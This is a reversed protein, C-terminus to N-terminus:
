CSAFVTTAKALPYADGASKILICIHILHVDQHSHLPPSFRKRISTEKIATKIKSKPVVYYSNQKKVRTGKIPKPNEMHIYQPGENECVYCVM